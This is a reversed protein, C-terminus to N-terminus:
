WPSTPPPKLFSGSTGPKPRFHVRCSRTLHPVPPPGPRFPAAGPGAPRHWPDRGKLQGLEKGHPGRTVGWAPASHLAQGPVAPLWWTGGCMGKVRLCHGSVSHVCLGTQPGPGSPPLGLGPVRHMNESSCGESVQKAGTLFWSCIALPSVACLCQKKCFVPFVWPPMVGCPLLVQTCHWPAWPECM